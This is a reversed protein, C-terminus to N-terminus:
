TFLYAHVPYRCRYSFLVLHYPIYLAFFSAQSLLVVRAQFGDVSRSLSSTLCSGRELLM